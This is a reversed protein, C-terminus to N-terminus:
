GSKFIMFAMQGLYFYVYHNAEHTVFSGFNRGVFCHWTATYKRDLEKKIHSAIEKENHYKEMGETAIQIAYTEMDKPMDSVKVTAQPTQWHQQTAAM